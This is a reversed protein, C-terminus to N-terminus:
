LKGYSETAATERYSSFYFATSLSAMLILSFMTSILKLTPYAAPNTGRDLTTDIASWKSQAM